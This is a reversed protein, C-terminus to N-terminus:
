SDVKTCHSLRESSPHISLSRTFHRFRHSISQIVIIELPAEAPIGLAGELEKNLVPFCNDYDPDEEKQIWDWRKIQNDNIVWNFCTPSVQQILEAASQKSVKSQGDYSLLIEPFKSVTNLQVKLSFREYIWWQSTENKRSKLWIQNEKVFGVKVIQKQISRFYFNIQRNYYRRILDPNETKFDILLPQFGETEGTFTTYLENTSNRVVNPFLSEAENPFLTFHLKQSKGNDQDSFYFTIPAKPWDFTLINFFLSNKGM